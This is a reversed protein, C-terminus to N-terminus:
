DLGPSSKPDSSSESKADSGSKFKDLYHQVCEEQSKEDNVVRLKFMAMMVDRLFELPYKKYRKKSIADEGYMAFSDALWARLPDTALTGAYLDQVTGVPPFFEDGEGDKMYSVEIFATLLARKAEVDQIKECFVYLSGLKQFMRIAQIPDEDTFKEVKQKKSAPQETKAGSKLSTSFSDIPLVGTYILQVYNAFVEPNDVPLKVIGEEGEKWMISETTVDKAKSDVELTDM